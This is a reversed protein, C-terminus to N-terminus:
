AGDQGSVRKNSRVPFGRLSQTIKTGTSAAPGGERIAPSGPGRGGRSSRGYVTRWGQLCNHRRQRGPSICARPGARGGPPRATHERPTAPCPFPHTQHGPHPPDSLTGGGKKEAGQPPPVQKKPPAPTPCALGASYARTTGPHEAAARNGRGTGQPLAGTVHESRAPSASLLQCVQIFM